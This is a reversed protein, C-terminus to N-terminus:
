REVTQVDEKKIVRFQEMIFGQPNNDSRVSNVLQCATVLKRETINSARTIYQKAYIQVQYPYNDFNCVISDQGICFCKRDKGAIFRVSFMAGVVFWFKKPLFKSLFKTTEPFLTFVCVCVCVCPRGNTLARTINIFDKLYALKRAKEKKPFATFKTNFIM